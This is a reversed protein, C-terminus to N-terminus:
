WQMLSRENFAKVGINDQLQKKTWLTSELLTVDSRKYIGFLRNPTLYNHTTAFDDFSELIDFFADSTDDSIGNWFSFLPAYAIHRIATEGFYHNVISYM